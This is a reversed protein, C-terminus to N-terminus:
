PPIPLEWVCGFPKDDCIKIVQVKTEGSWTALGGTRGSPRAPFQLCVSLVQFTKCTETEEVAPILPIKVYRDAFVPVEM